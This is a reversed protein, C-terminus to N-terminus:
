AIRANGVYAAQVRATGAYMAGVPAAGVYGVLDATGSGPEPEVPDPGPVQGQFTDIRQIRQVNDATYGTFTCLIKGDTKPTVVLRGYQSITASTLSSPYPGQAYGSGKHSPNNAMPAAQYLPCGARMAIGAALAHMDGGFIVAHKKTRTRWAAIFDGLENREALTGEWGDAGNQQTSYNWVAGQVIIALDESTGAMADLTDKLWQKQATGLVTTGPQGYSRTDLAIVRVYSGWPKTWYVGRTSQVLPPHAIKERYVTNWNTWGTPNGSYATNNLMGDHDDPVYVSPTTAHLRGLNAARQRQEFRARYNDIGTGTGDFYYYDGLFTFLHDGRSAISGAAPSDSADICSGLDMRLEARGTPATWLSGVPTSTDLWEGGQSNVMAVRYYWRGPQSRAPLGVTLHVDGRANPTAYPGYVVGTTVDPNTGVRLRAKVATTNVTVRALGPDCFGVWRSRLTPATGQQPPTPTGPDTPETAGAANLLVVYGQRQDGHKWTFVSDLDNAEAVARELMAAGPARVSTEDTSSRVLTWGTSQPLFEGVLGSSDIAIFALAAGASAAPAPDLRISPTQDTDSYAPFQSPGFPNSSSAGRYEAVIAAAGFSPTQWSASVSTEGGAALKTAVLMSVSPTSRQVLTTWGAPPTFVGSAQDVSWVGILRSGATAPSSLTVAQSTRPAAENYSFAERVQVRTVTAAPPPPEPPPTTGDTTETGRSLRVKGIRIGNTRSNVPARYQGMKLYNSSSTMTARNTKPVKVVGDILFEVFGASSSTSNKVHLTCSLVKGRNALFESRSMIVLDPSNDASGGIRWAGTDKSFGLSVPPSGAGSHLQIPTIYFSGVIIDFDAEFLLEFQIWREDGEKFVWSAGSGSIESREGNSHRDEARVEYRVAKGGDFKADNVITTRTTTGNPWNAIAQNSSTTEANQLVRWIGGSNLGAGPNFEWVIISGRPGAYPM